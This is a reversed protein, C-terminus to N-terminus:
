APFVIASNNKASKLVLSPEIELFKKLYLVLRASLSSPYQLCLHFSARNFHNDVSPFVNKAGINEFFSGLVWARDKEWKSPIQQFLGPNSRIETEFSSIQVLLFTGKSLEESLSLLVVKRDILRTVSKICIIKGLNDDTLEDSSFKQQGKFSWDVKPFNIGHSLASVKLMKPEFIVVQFDLM